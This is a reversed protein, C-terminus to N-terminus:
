RAAEEEAITEAPAATATAATMIAEESMAEPGLEAAIRGNAMVLVRDAMGLIEPLEGSLLVVGAGKATLDRIIEYIERKAGVDVGRTPEAMVFIKPETGLVKGFVLKQQNGGSLNGAKQGPSALKIRLAEVMRGIFSREAGASVFLGLARRRGLSGIALNEGSSRILALGDRKRDDPIYGIGAAIADRSSRVRAPRGGVSFTRAEFSRAGALAQVLE